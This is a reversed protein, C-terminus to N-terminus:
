KSKLLGFIKKTVSEIAGAADVVRLIGLKTYYFKVPATMSEYVKLRNSIIEPKDDERQFLEGGCKECRSPDKLKDTLLNFITGCQRCTVRNSLREIVKDHSIDMSIVITLKMKLETLLRSLSEAQPLTRPFGDLIFGNEAKSSQIINKIMEIMLNDPVLQGSDLIAKAKRGLETGNAVEQRLIDGTSIHMINLKGSLIKAQTGKGVGPPGFLILLIKNKPDTM